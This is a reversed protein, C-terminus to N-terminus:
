VSVNRQVEEIMQRTIVVRGDTCVNCRLVLREPLPKSASRFIGKTVIQPRLAKDLDVENLHKGPGNCRIKILQAM